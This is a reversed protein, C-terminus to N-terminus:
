PKLRSFWALAVAPLTGARKLGGFVQLVPGAVLLTGGSFLLAAPPVAESGTAFAVIRRLPTAPQEAATTTAPTAPADTPAAAADAVPTATGPDVSGGGLSPDTYVGGDGSGVDAPPVFADGEPVSAPVTTTPATTSTTTTAAPTCPAAKALSRWAALQKRAVESIPKPLAVNGPPLNQQGAGVAYTMVKDMQTKTEADIGCTPMAAYVLLPLAYADEDDNEWDPSFTGDPNPSMAEAAATVAADTPAVFEGAANDLWAINLAEVADTEPKADTRATANDMCGIGLNQLAGLMRAKMTTYDNVLSPSSGDPTGIDEFPLEYGELSGKTVDEEAKPDQHFWETLRYAVASSGSRFWPEITLYPPGTPFRPNDANDAALEPSASTGDRPSGGSIDALTRRSIRLDPFRTGNTSPDGANTDWYTCAVASTIMPILVIGRKEAALAAKEEADFPLSTLGIVAADAPTVAERGGKSGFDTYDAVVGASACIAPGWRTVAEKASSSGILSLTSTVSACAEEAEAKAQREAQSLPVDEAGSSGPRILFSSAILGLGACVRLTAHRRRGRDARPPFPM